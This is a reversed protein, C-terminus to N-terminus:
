RPLILVAGVRARITAAAKTSTAVAQPDDDFLAAEVGVEVAVDMVGTVEGTVDVVAGTPDVL